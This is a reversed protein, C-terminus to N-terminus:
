CFYNPYVVRNSSVLVGYSNTTAAIIASRGSAADYLGIGVPTSHLTIGDRTTVTVAGITNLDAGLRVKHQLRTAVFADETVDFSPDSPVWQQGDWYNMGTAIEVVRPRTESDNATGSGPPAGTPTSDRAPISWTRSNPGIEVLVPQGKAPTPSVQGRACLSFLTLALALWPTSKMSRTKFIPLAPSEGAGSPSEGVPVASLLRPSLGDGM